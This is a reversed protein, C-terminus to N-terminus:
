WPWTRLHGASRRGAHVPVPGAPLSEGWRCGPRPGASASGTLLVAGGDLFARRAADDLPDGTTTTTGTMETASTAGVRVSAAPARDAAPGVTVPDVTARDAMVPGGPVGSARGGM